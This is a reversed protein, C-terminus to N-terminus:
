GHVKLLMKAEALGEAPRGYESATVRALSTVFQWQFAPRAVAFEECVTRYYKEAHLAGDESIAYKLLCDFVERSPHGLNAYQGIVTAAKAQLNGRIAEDLQAILRDPQKESIRDLHSALPLADWHLFDGGRSVRDYAVQYAGLILCAARHRPSEAFRALNRWANASDSAHVGISDGHVSGIPKGASEERATRGRDRLVLQNAALTIAQGIAIPDMGEAIAAAVAEAAQNATARFITQSFREVWVDDAVKKGDISQELHFEDFLRPLLTSPTERDTGHAMSSGKACYRLSQRLLTQAHEPGVIDLLDWARYPLAVRHVEAEDEVCFLAHDLLSSPERIALSAFISEARSVDKGRVADRLANPTAITSDATPIISHLRENVKGGFAQIRSTNRYLVKLIPLAQSDGRLELSMRYAPSLAMMTHFGIYDEGGFTRANALAAAAVLSKAEVGNKMRDVLLSLLKSPETEQMIAVLPEMTGFHLSDDDAEITVSLGIDAVTSAGVAAAMMGYGVDGLFRRRTRSLM